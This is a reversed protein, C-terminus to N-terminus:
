NEVEKNYNYMAEVQLDGDDDMCIILRAHNTSIEPAGLATIETKYSIDALYRSEGLYSCLNLEVGLLNWDTTNAYYLIKSAQKMLGDLQGGPKIYPKLAAYNKHQEGDVNGIFTMYSYIYETSFDHIKSSVKDNCNALFCREDLNELTNGAGDRVEVICESLFPGFKYTTLKPLWPYDNYIEKLVEYPRINDSIYENGLLKGNVYISYEFPLYVESYNLWSSIDYREEVVAWFDFGFRGKVQEINVRGLERNDVILQYESDSLKYVEARQFLGQLYEKELIPDSLHIDSDGICQELSNPMPSNLYKRFFGEPLSNEYASLFFYFVGLIVMGFLAITAIYIFLFKKFGKM